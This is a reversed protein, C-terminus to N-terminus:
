FFFFQQEKRNTWTKRSGFFHGFCIINISKPSFFSQSVKSLIEVSVWFKELLHWVSFAFELPIKINWNPTELFLPVGLDDIKIPNEMIFWGNKPVVIKPFMWNSVRWFKGGQNELLDWCIWKRRLPPPTQWSEHRAKLGGSWRQSTRGWIRPFSRWHLPLFGNGQQQKM